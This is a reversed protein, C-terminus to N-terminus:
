TGPKLPTCASVKNKHNLVCWAAAIVDGVSSLLVLSHDLLRGPIRSVIFLQFRVAFKVLGLCVQLL